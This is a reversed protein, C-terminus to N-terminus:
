GEKGQWIRQLLIGNKQSHFAPTPNFVMPSISNKEPHGQFGRLHEKPPSGKGGLGGEKPQFFFGGRRKVKINIKTNSTRGQPGHRSWEDKSGAKKAGKTSTNNRDQKYINGERRRDGWESIGGYQKGIKRHKIIIGM